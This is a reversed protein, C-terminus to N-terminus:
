DLRVLMETERNAEIQPFRGLDMARVVKTEAGGERNGVGGARHRYRHRYRDRVVRPEAASGGAVGAAVGARM